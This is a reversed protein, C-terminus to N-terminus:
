RLREIRLRHAIVHHETEALLGAVPLWIPGTDGPMPSRRTQTAPTGDPILECSQSRSTSLRANYSCTAQYPSLLYDIILRPCM